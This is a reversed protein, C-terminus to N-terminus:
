VAEGKALALEVLGDPRQRWEGVQVSHGRGNEVEVFRCEDNPGPYGTFVFRLDDYPMGLRVREKQLEGALREIHRVNEQVQESLKQARDFNEDAVETAQRIAEAQAYAFNGILARLAEVHLKPIRLRREALASIELILADLESRAQKIREINTM